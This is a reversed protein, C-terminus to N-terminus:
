ASDLIQLVVQQNPAPHFVRVNEAARLVGHRNQREPADVVLAFVAIGQGQHLEERACVVPMGELGNDFDLFEFGRAVTMLHGGCLRLEM